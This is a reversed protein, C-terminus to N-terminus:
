DVLSPCAGERRKVKEATKGLEECIRSEWNEGPFYLSIKPVKVFPAWSNM